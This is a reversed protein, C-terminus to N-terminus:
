RVAWSVGRMPLRRALASALTEGDGVAAALRIADQVDIKVDADVYHCPFASVAASGERLAPRKWPEPLHLVDAVVQCPMVRLLM